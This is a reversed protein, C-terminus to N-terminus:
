FCGIFFFVRHLAIWAPPARHCAAFKCFALVLRGAPAKKNGYFFWLIIMSKEYPCNSIFALNKKTKKHQDHKCIIANQLCIYVKQLPTKDTKEHQKPKELKEISIYFLAICQL